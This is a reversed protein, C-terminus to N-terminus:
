KILKELDLLPIDWVSAQEGLEGMQIFDRCQQVREAQVWKAAQLEADLEAKLGNSFVLEVFEHQASEKELAKPLEEHNDFRHEVKFSKAVHIQDPHDDDRERKLPSTRVASPPGVRRRYNLEKELHLTRNGWNANLRGLCCWGCPCNLWNPIHEVDAIEDLHNGIRSWLLKEESQSIKAFRSVEHM